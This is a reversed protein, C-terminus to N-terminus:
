FPREQSKIFAKMGYVLNSKEINKGDLTSGSPLDIHKSSKGLHSTGSGVYTGIVKQDGEFTPSHMAKGRVEDFSKM